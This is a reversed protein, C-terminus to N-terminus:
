VKKSINKTLIKRRAYGGLIGIIPSLILAIILLVIIKYRDVQPVQPSNFKLIPIIINPLNMLIGILANFKDTMLGGYFAPIFIFAAIEIYTGNLGITILFETMLGYLCVYNIVMLILFLLIIRKRLYKYCVYTGIILILLKIAQRFIFNAFLGFIFDIILM